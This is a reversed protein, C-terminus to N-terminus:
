EALAGYGLENAGGDITLGPPGGVIRGGPIIGISLGGGGSGFRSALWGVAGGM